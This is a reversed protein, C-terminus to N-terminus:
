GGQTATVVEVRDGEHLAKEGWAGKRVVEDNVAVAIGSTQAQVDMTELLQALTMGGQPLPQAEGNVHITPATQVHSM